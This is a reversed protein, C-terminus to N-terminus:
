TLHNAIIGHQHRQAFDTLHVKTQKALTTKTCLCLIFSEFGLWDLWGPEYSSARVVAPERQRWFRMQLHLKAHRWNNRLQELDNRKRFTLKVRRSNFQFWGNQSLRVFNFMQWFISVDDVCSCFLDNGTASLSSFTQSIYLFSFHVEPSSNNKMTLYAFTNREQQRRRAHQVHLVITKRREVLWIM